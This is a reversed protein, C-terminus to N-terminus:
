QVRQKTPPNLAEVIQQVEPSIPLTNHDDCRWVGKVGKENQRYLNVHEKMGRGCIECTM